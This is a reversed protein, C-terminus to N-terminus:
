LLDLRLQRVTAPGDVDGIEVLRQLVLDGVIQDADYKEFMNAM